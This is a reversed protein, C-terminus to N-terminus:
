TAILGTLRQAALLANLATRAEADIVAGGAADAIAAPQTIPAKNWFGLKQTTATGFKTGTTANVVLNVADSLTLATSTLVAIDANNVRFRNAFAAPCNFISDGGGIDFLFAYNSTSPTVNGFWIGPYGSVSGVVVKATTGAPNVVIQNAVIQFTQTGLRYFSIDGGAYLNQNLGAAGMPRSGGMAVNIM